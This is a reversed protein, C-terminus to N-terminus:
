SKRTLSGNFSFGASSSALIANYIFLQGMYIVFKLKYGEFEWEYTGDLKIPNNHLFENRPKRKGRKGNGWEYIDIDLTLNNIDDKSNPDLRPLILLNNYYIPEFFFNTSRPKETLFEYKGTTLDLKTIRVM